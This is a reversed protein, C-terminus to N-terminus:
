HTHRNSAPAAAEVARAALPFWSKGLWPLLMEVGLLWFSSNEHAPECDDCTSRAPYSRGDGPPEIMGPVPDGRNIVAIDGGSFGELVLSADLRIHPVHRVKGGALCADVGYGAIEFHRHFDHDVIGADRAVGHQM